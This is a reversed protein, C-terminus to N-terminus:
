EARLALMADVRAARRAPIYSAIAAALTLVGTAAAFSLMDYPEIGFLFTAAVRTVGYAGALGLVVGAAVPVLSRRMMLAVVDGPEAGLALRVGIENTRRAVAYAILGYVGLVALALALASFWSLFSAGLRQTMALTRVRDELTGPRVIPLAPDFGRIERLLAPLAQRGAGRGRVIVTGWWTRRSQHQEWPMYVALRGEERLNYYKGDRAVGVVELGHRSPLLSLQRGIPDQGPWAHRAFAENVIVVPPSTATDRPGFPRGSALQIGTTRFYDTGCYLEATQPLRREVGDVGFAPTSDPSSALPLDGFTAAEIGPTERLRAVVADHFQAIRAQDYGGSWFPVNAFALREVDTNVETALAARLSRVFLAGTVLLVLSIAIQMTVLASRTLSRGSTAAAGQARLGSVVDVRSGAVAPMVGTIAATFMSAGAAFLLVRTTLGLQLAELSIGGPIVFANMIQLMWAAVALGAIGGLLSLMLSEVVFLRLVRGPRAGLALRVAAERRRQENRALILGALNACGVLLVLAVVMGLLATFRTTDAQTRPSLAAASAEILRVAPSPGKRGPRPVGALASEAQAITVDPRLRGTIALWSQPSYAAGGIRLVTDLFYNAAPLVLPATALPIFMDQPSDLQLGRFGRPAVGVVTAHRDAVKIPKGVVGPDAGMRARWFADTLVVAPEAGERHEDAVLVRGRVARVGATEFYDETVFAVNALRTDNGVSVRFGREGSAAASQFVHQSQQLYHRVDPFTFTRSLRDPEQVHVAVVRDPEDIPLPRLLIAEVVTFIATTAGIGLALTLVAALTFGPSRRLLRFAYRIDNLM